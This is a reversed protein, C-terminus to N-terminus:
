FFSKSNKLQGTMPFLTFTFTFTYSIFYLYKKWTTKRVNGVSTDNCQYFPNSNVANYSNWQKKSSSASIIKM